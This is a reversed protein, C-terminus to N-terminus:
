QMLKTLAENLQKVSSDNPNIAVVQRLYYQAKRYDQRGYYIEYLRFLSDSNRPNSILSSRLDALMLEDTKQLYSRRLYLFSKLKSNASPLLSDIYQIVADKNGTECFAVIYTQQLLENNPNKDYQKKAVDMAETKKGLKLCIEVHKKIVEPLVDSKGILKKSIDYAEQWNERQTLGELAYLLAQSNESDQLLIKESLEDAYKGAVPSDTASAIKAAYMLAEINDPYLQLAKEITETAAVTNKSWDFQVKARLILYDISSDNMRSYMDLLSVAHIYDNKKILIKARFLVFDLDNPTQQLVKAVYEEALTYNESDFAVYANQKLVAINSADSINDLVQKALQYNKTQQLIRAYAISVELNSPIKQYAKKLYNYSTQYDQLKEYLIGALYNVLTSEANIQLALELADKCPYYVAPSSTPTLLVLCPLIVTLLDVNGTSSDFVGAKASNIAGIYPNDSPIDELDLGIRESPWVIKAIQGAVEILVKENDTYESENKRIGSLANRLSEPSGEEVASVIQPDIKYFYTRKQSPLKVTSANQTNQSQTNKTKKSKAAAFTNNCLLVIM